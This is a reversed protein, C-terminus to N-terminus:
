ALEVGFGRLVEVLRAVPLGIVCAYDGEIAKVLAMGRGQIAYGGAKDLGEGSRAYWEVEGRTLDRFTVRAEQCGVSEVGDRIVALGTYVTHDRGSLRRLFAANEAPDAPKALPVGDVVVATDAAIVLIGPRRAAVARGKARALEAVAAGPDGTIAPEEVGPEEVDFRLGLGDLLERRRPSKSALVIGVM